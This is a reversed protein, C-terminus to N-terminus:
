FLAEELMLCLAHYIPLHHEQIQQTDAGPAIIAVDCLPAMKGGDHGTLGLTRMGRARAARLAHIVNPSNGSTSIAMLADASRGLGWVQQAFGFQAGVDNAFASQIGLQDPLSISAIAGQLHDAVDEGEAGFLEREEASLPRKKALEKMLEGSIHTSDAASGGNGCLLIKGGGKVADLLLEFGREVQDRCPETAPYRGTLDDLFSETTPMRVEMTLGAGFGPAAGYFPLSLREEPRRADAM